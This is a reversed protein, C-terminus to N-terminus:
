VSYTRQTSPPLNAPWRIPFWHFYASVRVMFRWLPTFQAIRDMAWNGESPVALSAKM